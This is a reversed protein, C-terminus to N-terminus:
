LNEAYYKNKLYKNHRNKIYYKERMKLICFLVLSGCVYFLPLDVSNGMVCIAFKGDEDIGIGIMGDTKTCYIKSVGSEKLRSIVEQSPHTNDGASVFAYTPNTMALFEASTSSKSGHHAVQLFDININEREFEELFETERQITADGTLLISRDYYSMLVFPSYANTQLYTDLKPAYVKLYFVSSVVVKNEVFKVNCNPEAYIATVVNDYISNSVVKYGFTNEIESASTSMIKPRYINLVEFKKLLKVVGGVHDADSHSLVLHNIKSLNNRKLILSVSDVFNDGSEVSGTDYILTERNPLVVMTASAQGVNLFYIQMSKRDINSFGASMYGLFSYNLFILVSFVCFLIISYLKTLDYEKRKNDKNKNGNM